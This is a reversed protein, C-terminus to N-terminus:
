LLMEKPIIAPRDRLSLPRHPIKMPSVKMTDQRVESIIERARRFAPHVCPMIVNRLEQFGREIRLLRDIDNQSAERVDSKRLNMSHIELM